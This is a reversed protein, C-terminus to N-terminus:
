QSIVDIGFLILKLALLIFNLFPLTPNEYSDKPCAFKQNPLFLFICYKKSHPFEAHHILSYMMYLIYM